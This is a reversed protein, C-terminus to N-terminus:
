TLDQSDAQVDAAWWPGDRSLFVALLLSAVNPLFMAEGALDGLSTESQAAQLAATEAVPWGQLALKGASTVMGDASYDYLCTSTALCPPSTGWPRHSVCQSLDVFFPLSREAKPRSGWAVDLIDLARSTKSVGSMLPGPKGKPKTWPASSPAMGLRSRVTASHFKWRCNGGAPDQM